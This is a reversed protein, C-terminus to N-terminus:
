TRSNRFDLRLRVSILQHANQKTPYQVRDYGDDLAVVIGNIQWAEQKPKPQEKASVWPLACFLTLLLPFPFLFFPSRKKMQHM